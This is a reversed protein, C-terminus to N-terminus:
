SFFQDLSLKRNYLPYMNYENAEDYSSKAYGTIFFAFVALGPLLEKSFQLFSVLLLKPIKITLQGAFFL